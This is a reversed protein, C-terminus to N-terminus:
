APKLVPPVKILSGVKSPANALFEQVPLTPGEEDERLHNHANELVRTCPEIGTTDVALIEECYAVANRLDKGVLKLEEESFDIRCLQALHAIEEESLNM